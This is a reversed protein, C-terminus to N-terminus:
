CLWLRRDGSAALSRRMIAAITLLLALSYTLM